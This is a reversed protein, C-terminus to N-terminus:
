AAEITKPPAPLHTKLEDIRRQHYRLQRATDLRDYFDAGLETYPQRTTLLYYAIRLVTHGVAVVARMAGRRKAIRRYRAALITGSMRSASAAAIGLARRLWTNGKRTGSARKKGASENNAPCMGAWAALASASRFRSMDPGVEAVLDEALRTNIGPISDLLEIAERMSLAGTTSQEPSPPTAQPPLPSTGDTPNAFLPTDDEKPSRSGPRPPDQGTLQAVRADLKHIAAEIAVVADYHMGLVFRHHETFKGRLARRLAPIKGRLSMKALNALRNPDTEGAILATLMARGSAGMVDSAVDGLKINTDELIKQIRNIEATRQGSLKVRYRTLDRLERQERPPVFSRPLLGHQLLRALWECDKVDTKRGPVAKVQQANCLLLEFHDELVNWIPKWYVGTSEMGVHTVAESKLWDRLAELDHMMTGFTRVESRDRAKGDGGVRVCAVVNAKHVDLGACREFVVEM